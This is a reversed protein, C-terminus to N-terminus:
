FLAKKQTNTILIQLFITVICLTKVTRLILQKRKETPNLLSFAERHKPLNVCAINRDSREEDLAANRHIQTKFADSRENLGEVTGKKIQEDPESNCKYSEYM